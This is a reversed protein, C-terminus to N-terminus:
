HKDSTTAQVGNISDAVWRELKAPTMDDEYGIRTALVQGGAGVVVMTPYVKVGLKDTFAKGDYAIPWDFHRQKVFGAATKADDYTLAFVRRDPYQKHYANLVPLEAICGICEAFFFDVVYPQGSLAATDIRGGGVRPLDFGPFRTGPKPIPTMDMPSSAVWDSTPSSGPRDKGIPLLTLIAQHHQKDLLTTYRQHKTAAAAFAKQDIPKGHEDHFVVEYHVGDISLLTVGSSAMDAASMSGPTNVGPPLLTMIFKASREDKKATYRQGGKVAATFSASTISKGNSDLFEIMPTPTATPAGATGAPPATDASSWPSGASAALPCVLMSLVTIATITRTRM